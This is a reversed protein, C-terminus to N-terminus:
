HTGILFAAPGKRVILAWGWDEDIIEPEFAYGPLTKAVGHRIWAACTKGAIQNVNQAVVDPPDDLGAKRFTIHREIM